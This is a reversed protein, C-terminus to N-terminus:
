IHILSLHQTHKTPPTKKCLPILQESDALALLKCLSPKVTICNKKLQGFLDEVAKKQAASLAFRAQKLFADYESFATAGFSLGQVTEKKAALAVSCVLCVVSLWWLPQAFCKM